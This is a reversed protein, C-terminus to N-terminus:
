RYAKIEDWGDGCERVDFCLVEGDDSRATFRWGYWVAPPHTILGSYIAAENSLPTPEDIVRWTRGHRILRAPVAAELELEVRADHIVTM